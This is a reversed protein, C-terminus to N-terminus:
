HQWNTYYKPRDKKDYISGGILFDKWFIGLYNKKKEFFIPPTASAALHIQSHGAVGMQGVPHSLWGM